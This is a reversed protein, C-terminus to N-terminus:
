PHNVRAIDRVVHRIRPIAVDCRYRGEGIEMLCGNMAM